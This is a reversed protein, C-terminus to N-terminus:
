AVVGILTQNTTQIKFFVLHTSLTNNQTIVLYKRLPVNLPNIASGGKNKSVCLFVEVHSFFPFRLESVPDRSIAACFLAM